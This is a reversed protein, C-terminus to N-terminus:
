DFWSMDPWERERERERERVNLVRAARIALTAIPRARVGEEEEERESAAGGGAM